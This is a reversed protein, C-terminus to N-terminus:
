MGNFPYNTAALPLAESLGPNMSIAFRDQMMKRFGTNVIFLAMDKM